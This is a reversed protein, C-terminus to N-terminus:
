ENSDGKKEAPPMLLESPIVINYKRLFEEADEKCLFNKLTAREYETIEGQLRRIILNIIARKVPYDKSKRFLDLLTNLDWRDILLEWRKVAEESEETVKAWSYDRMEGENKSQGLTVLPEAFEPIVPGKEKAKEKKKKTKGKMM